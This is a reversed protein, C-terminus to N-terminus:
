LCGCHHLLNPRGVLTLCSSSTVGVVVVGVVSSLPASWWRSGRRSGRIAHVGLWPSSLAPWLGRPSRVPFIVLGRAVWLSGVSGSLPAGRTLNDVVGVVIGVGPCEVLTLRTRGWDRRRRLRMYGGVVVMIGGGGLYEM